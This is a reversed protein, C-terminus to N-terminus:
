TRMVEDPRRFDALTWEGLHKEVIRERPKRCRPPTHQETSVECLMVKADDPLRHHIHLWGEPGLMIECAMDWPDGEELHRSLGCSSGQVSLRYFKLM